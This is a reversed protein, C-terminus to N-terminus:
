SRNIINKQVKEVDVSRDYRKAEKLVVLHLVFNKSDDPQTTIGLLFGHGQGFKKRRRRWWWMWDCYMVSSSYFDFRDDPTHLIFIDVRFKYVIISKKGALCCRRKHTVCNISWLFKQSKKIFIQIFKVGKLIMQFFYIWWRPM